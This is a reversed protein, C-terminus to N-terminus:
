DSRLNKRVGRLRRNESFLGVANAALIMGAGIVLALGVAEGYLVWALLMILPLRLYDIPMVVAADVLSLARSLCYHAGLATGAAIVLWRWNGAAPLSLDSAIPALALLGQTATMYFLILLYTNHHDALLLTLHRTAIITIGVGAAGALMILSAPNLVAVGPRLIVLIGALGLLLAVVRGVRLPEGMFVAALLTAWLPATFELAFVEALPLAAIAILWACQGGFHTTNRLLHWGLQHRTMRLEPLAGAKALLAVVVTLGLLSRWFLIELTAMSQTLERSAVALLCFGLLAMVMWLLAHTTARQGGNLPM